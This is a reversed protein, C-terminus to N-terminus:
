RFDIRIPITYKVEIAQGKYYSPTWSPMQDLMKYAEECLFPHGRVCEYESLQGNKMIVFRLYIVNHSPIEGLLSDPPTPNFHELIFQFLAEEGGPFVAVSPEGTNFEQSDFLIDDIIFSDIPEKIHITDQAQCVLLNLCGVIILCARM